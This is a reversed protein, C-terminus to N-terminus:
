RRVRDTRQELVNLSGAVFEAKFHYVFSDKTVEPLSTYHIDYELTFAGSGRLYKEMNSPSEDIKISDYVAEGSSLEFPLATYPSQLSKTSLDFDGRLLHLNKKVIRIDEAFGHKNKIPIVFNLFVSKSGTEDIYPVFNFSIGEIKVVPINEIEFAKKSIQTQIDLNRAQWVNVGAVILTSLSILTALIKWSVWVPITKLYKPLWLDAGCESCKLAKIPIERGCVDCHKTDKPQPKAGKEINNRHSM